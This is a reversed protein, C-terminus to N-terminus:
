DNIDMFHKWIKEEENGCDVKFGIDKCKDATLKCSYTSGYIKFPCNSENKEILALIISDIYAEDSADVELDLVTEFQDYLLTSLAKKLNSM